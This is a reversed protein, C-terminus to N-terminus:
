EPLPLKSASYVLELSVRNDSGALSLVVETQDMQWRTSYSLQGLSVAQGWRNPDDKLTAEHWLKNEEEPEGYKQSFEDNLRHFDEIYLSNRPYEQLFVYRTKMLRDRSFMYEIRCDREMVRRNYKLVKTGDRSTVGVPDGILRTLDASLMGWSVVEQRAKPENPPPVEAAGHSFSVSRTKIYLRTVKSEKVYGSKLAGTNQSSFYVYNWERKFRRTSALILIEGKEVTAIVPSRLDPQKHIDASLASVELKKSLASLGTVLCLLLAATGLLIKMRGPTKASMTKM